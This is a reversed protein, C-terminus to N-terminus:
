DLGVMWLHISAISVLLCIISCKEQRVECLPLNKALNSIVVVGVASQKGGSVCVKCGASQSPCTDLICGLESDLCIGCDVTSPPLKILDIHHRCNAQCRLM